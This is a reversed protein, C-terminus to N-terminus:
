FYSETIANLVRTPTAQATFNVILNDSGAGTGSTAISGIIQGEITITSAVTMGSSLTVGSGTRIALADGAQRGSGFSVTLNGGNFNANDEDAAIAASAIDILVPSASTSVSQNDAASLGTITPADNVNTVTIALTQTDTLTGDSATVIVNYINNGGNDSPVEFNPNTKFTLTGNSSNIDFLAADTGSVSYTVTAGADPDDAAVVTVALQNEAANINATAGGGDSSIVPNENVNTVTVAIAQSDSALGDSSTITVNYVNDGGADTPIEFNPATTFTM